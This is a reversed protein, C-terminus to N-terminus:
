GMEGVVMLAAVGKSGALSGEEGMWWPMRARDGAASPGVSTPDLAGRWGDPDSRDEVWAVGDRGPHKDSRVLYTKLKEGKNPSSGRM